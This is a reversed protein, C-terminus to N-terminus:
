RGEKLKKRLLNRARMLRTAATSEPIGLLAAIERNGYEEGYKLLLIERYKPPLTEVARSLSGFGCREAEERTLFEEEASSGSEDAFEEPEDPDGSGKGQDSGGFPLLERERRRKRRRWRDLAANEVTRMVTLKLRREDGSLEAFYAPRACIKELADMVADEAEGDDSLIRRATHFMANGYLRFVTEAPSASEGSEESECTEAPRDTLDARGRERGMRFLEATVAKFM